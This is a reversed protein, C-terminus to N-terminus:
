EFIFVFFHIQFSDPGSVWQHLRVITLLTWTEPPSHLDPMRLCCKLAVLLMKMSKHLSISNRRAMWSSVWAGREKRWFFFTGYKLWNDGTLITKIGKFHVELRHRRETHRQRGRRERGCKFVLMFQLGGGWGTLSVAAQAADYIHFYVLMNCHRCLSVLGCVCVCLLWWFLYCWSSCIFILLHLGFCLCVCHSIHVKLCLPSYIDAPLCVHLPRM